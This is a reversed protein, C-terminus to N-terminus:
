VRCACIGYAGVWDGVGISFTSLHLETGIPQYLLTLAVVAGYECWPIVLLRCSIHNTHPFVVIWGDNEPLMLVKHRRFYIPPM